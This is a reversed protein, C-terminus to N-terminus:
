SQEGAVEVKGCKGCAECNCYCFGLEECDCYVKEGPAVLEDLWVEVEQRQLADDEFRDLILRRMEEHDAQYVEGAEEVM